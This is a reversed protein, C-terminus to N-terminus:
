YKWGLARVLAGVLEEEDKNARKLYSHKYISNHKLLFVCMPQLEQLQVLMTPKTTEM